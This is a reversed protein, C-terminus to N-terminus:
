VLWMCLKGPQPCGASARLLRVCVCSSVSLIGYRSTAPDRLRCPFLPLHSVSFWSSYLTWATFSASFYIWSFIVSFCCLSSDLNFVATYLLSPWLFLHWLDIITILSVKLLTFLLSGEGVVGCTNPILYHILFFFSLLHCTHGLPFYNAAMIELSIPGKLFNLLGVSNFIPEHVESIFLTFTAPFSRLSKSM